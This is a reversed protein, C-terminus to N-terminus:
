LQTAGRTIVRLMAATPCALGCRRRRCGGSGRMTDRRWCQSGLRSSAVASRRLSRLSRREVACGPYEYSRSVRTLTSCLHAQSPKSPNPLHRVHTCGELRRRRWRRVAGGEAATHARLSLTRGRRGGGNRARWSRPACGAGCPLVRGSRRPRIAHPILPASDPQHHLTPPRLPQRVCSPARVSAQLDSGPTFCTM